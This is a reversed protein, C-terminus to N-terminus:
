SGVAVVPEIANEAGLKLIGGYVLQPSNLDSSNRFRSRRCFSFGISRLQNGSQVVHQINQFTTRIAVFLRHLAQLNNPDLVDPELDVHPGHVLNALM